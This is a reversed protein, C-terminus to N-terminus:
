RTEGRLTSFSEAPTHMLLFPLCAFLAMLIMWSASDEFFAAWSNRPSMQARWFTELRDLSLGLARRVGGECTAGDAYARVMDRLAQRGYVDRIYDIVSASEAYALRASVPDQPFTACLTRLPIPERESLTEELYLHANPDPAFTYEVSTALGESLWAPVQDFDSRTAEHLLAHTVEHPLIRQLQPIHTAEPAFPVLIVNTEYLTLADAGLPLGAPLALGLDGVNAYLYIDISKRIGEVHVDQQARSLGAVAVDLAQQAVKLSGQYWHVRVIEEALVQWDFRNDVYDFTQPETTLKTGAANVITWWYTVQVFPRVYRREIEHVHDVSVSTGADFRLAEITTGPTDSTRYALVVSQVPSASSVTLSFRMTQGFVFTHTSARVRIPEEAFALAPALTGYAIGAWIFLTLLWRRCRRSRM